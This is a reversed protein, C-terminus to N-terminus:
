FIPHQMHTQALIPLTSTVRARPFDRKPSTSSSKSSHASNARASLCALLSLKVKILEKRALKGRAGSRREAIRHAEKLQLALRAHLVKRLAMVPAMPNVSHEIAESLISAERTYRERVKDSRVIHQLVTEEDVAMGALSEEVEDNRTQGLLLIRTSWPIGPILGNGIAKLLTSKGSGNRGVLVYHRSEVLHLNVHSLLERNSVSISLDKVLIEKSAPADVADLAYRSQQATVSIYGGGPHEEPAAATDKGKRVM